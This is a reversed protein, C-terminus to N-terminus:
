DLLTTVPNLFAQSASGYPGGGGDDCDERCEHFGGLCAEGAGHLDHACGRMCSGVEFMMDLFCRFRDDSERCAAMGERRMDICATSCERGAHLVSGSCERLDGRCEHICEVPASGGHGSEGSEDPEPAPRECTDRCQDIAGKCTNRASRFEGRCAARCERRSDAERCQDRCGRVAGKAADKCIHRSDSCTDRCERDGDARAEPVGVAFIAVAVALGVALGTARIRVIWSMNM